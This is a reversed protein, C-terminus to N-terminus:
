GGGRDGEAAAGGWPVGASLCHTVHNEASCLAPGSPIGGAWSKHASGGRGAADPHRRLGRQAFWWVRLAQLSGRRARGGGRAVPRARLSRANATPPGRGNAIWQLSRGSALCNGRGVVLVRLSTSVPVRFRVQSTPM